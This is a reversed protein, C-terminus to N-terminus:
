MTAWVMYEPDSRFTRGMARFQQVFTRKEVGPADQGYEIMFLRQTQPDHWTFNVFSGGMYDNTMRWTGLTEWGKIHDPREIEETAIDRRYETTIYSDERTGRLHQEMLSDRVANIWNQDVFSADSVGDRWWGWMWRDNEPLARRFMVIDSSDISWIYDHQMRVSWGFRNWLSDSLHTQEHRRFVSEELRSFSIDLISKELEEQHELIKNALLSDETSSLVLVWQDRFWEENATFAFSEGSRIRELVSEEAIDKIFQSVSTTDDILGAFVVNRQRKIGELEDNNSITMFKLRFLTEAGNRMTQPITTIERGFTNRLASATESSFMLSDMVILVEEASGEARPRFDSGCSVLCIFVVIVMTSLFLRGATGKIQTM